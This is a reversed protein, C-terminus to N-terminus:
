QRSYIEGMVLPSELYHPLNSNAAISQVTVLRHFLVAKVPVQVEM